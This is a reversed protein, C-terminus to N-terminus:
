KEASISSPRSSNRIVVITSASDFSRSMRRARPSPVAVHIREGGSDRRVIRDIARALQLVPHQQHDRAQREGEAEEPEGPDQARQQVLAARRQQAGREVVLHRRRGPRVAAERVGDGPARDEDGHPRQDARRDANKGASVKGLVALLAPERERCAEQVVHQKRRRRDHHPQEDVRHVDRLHPM